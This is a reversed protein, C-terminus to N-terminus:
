SLIAVFTLHYSSSTIIITLSSSTLRMGTRLNPIMASWLPTTQTGIVVVQATAVQATYHYHHMLSTSFMCYAYQFWRSTSKGDDDLIPPASAWEPCRHGGEEEGSRRWPEEEGNSRMWPEEESNSMWGQESGEEGLHNCAVCSSPPILFQTSGVQSGTGYRIGNKIGDEIGNWIGDGIRIESGISDEIKRNRSSLGSKVRSMLRQDSETHGHQVRDLTKPAHTPSYSAVTVIPIILGHLSVLLM